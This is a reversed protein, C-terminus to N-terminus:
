IKTLCNKKEWKLSSKVIDELTKFKFRGIQKKFHTTKAIM